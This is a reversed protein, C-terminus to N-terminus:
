RHEPQAFTENRKFDGAPIVLKKRVWGGADRM